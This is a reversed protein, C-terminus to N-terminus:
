RAAAVCLAQGTVRYRGDALRFDAMTDRVSEILHDRKAQTLTPLLRALGGALASNTEWYEDFSSYEFELEIAEMATQTLGADSVLQSLHTRDALSFMGPSGPPSAPIDVLRELVGWLRTAWPNQHEDGWVVFGCVGGPKLVRQTQSLVAAQDPILMLGFRCVVADFSDDDLDIAEADVVRCEIVQELGAAAASRKAAAVMGAARDTALYRGGPVIAPALEIATDGPGAALELVHMGPALMAQTRLWETLPQFTKRTYVRKQEWSGAAEEWNQASRARYEDATETSGESM